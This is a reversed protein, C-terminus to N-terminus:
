IEYRVFKGDHIFIVSSGKIMYLKYGKYTDGLQLYEDNVLVKDNIIAKVNLPVQLKQQEKYEVFPNKITDLERLLEMHSQTQPHNEFLVEGDLCISKQNECLKIVFEGFTRKEEVDYIFNMTGKFGGIASIKIGNQLNEFSNIKVAYRKSIKETQNILEMHLNTNSLETTKAIQTPPKIPKTTELPPEYTIYVYVIYGFILFPILFLEVKQYTKLSEYYQRVKFM